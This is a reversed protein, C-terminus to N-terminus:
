IENWALTLTTSSTTGTAATGITQEQIRLPNAYVTSSDGSYWTDYGTASFGNTSGVFLTVLGTTSMAGDGTATRAPQSYATKVAGVISVGTNPANSSIKYTPLILQTFTGTWKGSIIKWYSNQGITIPYSSYTSTSDDIDKFNFESRSGTETPGSGNYESFTATSAM